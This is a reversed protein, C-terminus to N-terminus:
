PVTILNLTAGGNNRCIIGDTPSVKKDRNIDCADTITAPSLAITHADNRIAVADAPTVLGDSTADGVVNGVYFVDPSALGTNATALTTVQLWQNAIAGDAWTITVRDAGGTGAGARVTVSTPAPATAWGSPDNDNGVKFSFDAATAGAAGYLDVMIGNIGGSYGTYNLSTATHGPLLVTKDTAIAGDDATNAAPDNGDFASNNYFVYRGPWPAPGSKMLFAARHGDLSISTVDAFTAPNTNITAHTLQKCAQPLPVTM